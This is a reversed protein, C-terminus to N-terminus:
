AQAQMCVWVHNQFPRIKFAQVRGSGSIMLGFVARSRSKNKIGSEPRFALNLSPTLAYTYCSFKQSHSHNWGSNECVEEFILRWNKWILLHQIGNKSMRERLKHLNESIKGQNQLIKGPNVGFWFKQPPTQVEQVGGGVGTLWYIRLQPTVFFTTHQHPQLYVAYWVSFLLWRSWWMLMIQCLRPM